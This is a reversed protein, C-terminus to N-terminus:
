PRDARVAEARPPEARRGIDQQFRLLYGDPDQVLFQRVGVYVDDMRYWVEELERFPTVPCAARLATVDSVGIEFNVGRGFPPRMPGTIWSEDEDLRELMLVAGDREIMAFSDEPRAHRVSFGLALYFALSVAPDRVLLEPVLAPLASEAM